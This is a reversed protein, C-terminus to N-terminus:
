NLEEDTCFISEKGSLQQLSLAIADGTRWCGSLCNRAAHQKRDANRNPSRNAGMLRMRVKVRNRLFQMVPPSIPRLPHSIHCSIFQYWPFSSPDICSLVHSHTGRITVNKFMPMDSVLKELDVQDKALEQPYGRWDHHWDCNYVIALASFPPSGSESARFARELSKGPIITCLYVL